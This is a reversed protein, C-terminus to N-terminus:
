LKFQIELHVIKFNQRTLGKEAEREKVVRATINKDVKCM